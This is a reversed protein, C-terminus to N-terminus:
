PLMTAVRPQISLLSLPDVPNGDQRLEFYLGIQSISSSDGVTALVDGPQVTEGTRYLLDENNGYLSMTGNNHDVIMLLGFGRLWEAYVVQGEHIAVVPGGKPASIFVGAWAAGGKAKAEGYQATVTGVLPWPLRSADVSRTIAEQSHLTDILDQLKNRDNKLNSLLEQEDTLSSEIKNLLKGRKKTLKSLEQERAQLTDRELQLQTAQEGTRTVTHMVQSLTQRSDEIDAMRHQSVQRYYHLMRSGASPSDLSLLTRLHPNRGTRYMARLQLSLTENSQRMQRRLTNGHETEAKKSKQLREIKQKLTSRQKKVVAIQKNYNKLLQRLSSKESEKSRISDRTIRINEDVTTIKSEYVLTDAIVNSTATWAICCATLLLLSSPTSSRKYNLRLEDM